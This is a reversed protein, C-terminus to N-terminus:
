DNLETAVTLLREASDAVQFAANSIEDLISTINSVDETTAAHNTKIGSVARAITQFSDSLDKQMEVGSLIQTDVDKVSASMNSINSETEHILSSVDQVAQKTEEALKRVEDAVVAFGKGHEGARAAEISANLALLNTQDAIDTVLHVIESIKKSSVRLHQMTTDLKKVSSSMRSMLENQQNLLRTGDESKTETENVFTLGQKTAQSIDESQMVLSQISATTEESIASLEQATSQVSIMMEAKEDIHHQQIEMQEEDYAEIVIQQEFNIVKAFANVARKFDSLPLDLQECFTIFTNNLAQFSNLYWKSPLGIVVHIHAIRKRDEVYTHNIRGDFIATIHRTLTVKLRDISSNTNIIHTLESAKSITNYFEDVMLPVLEAAYQKFHSIIALDEKTLDLLLIQKALGPYTTLDLEVKQAAEDLHFHSTPQKPKSFNWISV